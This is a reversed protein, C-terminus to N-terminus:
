LKDALFCHFPSWGEPFRLSQQGSYQPVDAWGNPSWDKDYTRFKGKNPFDAPITLGTPAPM